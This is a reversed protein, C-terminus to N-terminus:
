RTRETHNECYVATINRRLLSQNKPTMSVFHRGLAQAATYFDNLLIETDRATGHGLRNTAPQRDGCLGPTLGLGAWDTNKSSLTDSPNTNRYTNHNVKILIM